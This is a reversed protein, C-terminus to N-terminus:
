LIICQFICVAVPNEKEMYINEGLHKLVYFKQCVEDRPKLNRLQETTNGSSTPSSVRLKTLKFGYEIILFILQFIFVLLKKSVVM